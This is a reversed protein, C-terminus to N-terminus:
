VDRGGPDLTALGALDDFAVGYVMDESGGGGSYVHEGVAAGEDRYLGGFAGALVQTM